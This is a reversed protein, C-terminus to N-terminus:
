AGALADAATFEVNMHPEFFACDPLLQRVMARFPEINVARSIPPYFDDHHQPVVARPAVNATLEAARRCIYSHGQLTPMFVDAGRIDSVLPDGARLGLSGAHVVRFGGFDFTYVLVPGAPWGSVEPLLSPLRPLAKPLTRAVLPLDFRIHKTPTVTVEFGELVTREQGSLVTVQAPDVGKERLTGAAVASCFVRAGSLRAIEPVDALHDFHGHSVFIYSADSLDAATLEQAPRAEANRSLFPDVLFVNGGHEVRFGATGLWRLRIDPTM